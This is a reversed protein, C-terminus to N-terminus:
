MKLLEDDVEFSGFVFDPAVFGVHEYLLITFELQLDLAGQSWESVQHRILPMDAIINGYFVSM